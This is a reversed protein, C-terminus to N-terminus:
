RAPSGSPHQSLPSQASVSGRLSAHFHAVQWTVYSTGFESETESQRQSVQLLIELRGDTALQLVDADTITAAWPLSPSELRALQIPGAPGRASITVVRDPARIDLELALSTAAFPVVETPLVFDLEANAAVMLEPRWQGTREDYTTTTGDANLAQRLAILGHPLFIDQGVAPRQLRVPLSVLAAGEPHMERSWQATPWALTWGYLRRTPRQLDPQPQLFEQYVDMRRQQEASLISDAMWKGPGAAVHQDVTVKGGSARCLLPNGEVFSLIPDTLAAPLGDPMELQLGAATLHGRVSLDEVPIAFQAHYRWSGPPWAQNAVSWKEFDELTFRRLGSTIADSTHIAADHQSDLHMDAVGDLFVASQERVLSTNGDDSIDILQLRAVSEPIDRRVWSAALLLMLSALAALGPAAWGIWAQHRLAALSIGAIALVACFGLLAAAVIGRSVVPNGIRLLPYDAPESLPLKASPANVNAAWNAAWRHVTYDSQYNPDSSLQEARPQIWVSSDITTLLLQGYGIPLAISAPWGDIQHLVHGGSQILRAMAVERPLEVQVTEPLFEGSQGAVQLTFADLMVREVQLVSQNPGLLPGILDVAVQDLMVWVRGGRQMFRRMAEVAAPDRLAMPDAIVFLDLADWQAMQLPLPGDGFSILKRDRQADVRAATVFDDDSSAMPQPWDWYLVEAPEPAAQMGMVRGKPLVKLSLTRTAPQGDHLLIVERQGDRVYMTASVDIQEFLGAQALEDPLAIFLELAQRQGAQLHVSRASQLQPVQAITAVITGRVSDTGTNAVQALLVLTNGPVARSQPTLGLSSFLLGDTAHSVAQSQAQSAPQFMALCGILTVLGAVRQFRVDNM